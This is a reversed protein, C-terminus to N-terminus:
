LLLLHVIEDDVGADADQEDTKRNKDGSYSGSFNLSLRCEGSHESHDPLLMAYTVPQVAERRRSATKKLSRMASRPM